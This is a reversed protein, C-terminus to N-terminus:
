TGKMAKLLNKSKKEKDEWVKRLLQELETKTIREKRKEKNRLVVSLRKFFEGFGKLGHRELYAESLPIFNRRELNPSVNSVIISLSDVPIYDMVKLHKWLRHDMYVILLDPRRELLKQLDSEVRNESLFYELRDKSLKKTCQKYNVIIQQSHVLGLPTVFSLDVRYGAERLNKTTSAIGKLKGHNFLEIASSTSVKRSFRSSVFPKLGGKALIKELEVGTGEECRNRGELCPDQVLLCIDM